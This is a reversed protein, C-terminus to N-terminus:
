PVDANPPNDWDKSYVPKIRDTLLGAGQYGLGAYGQSPSDEMEYVPLPKRDERVQMLIMRFSSIAMFVVLLIRAKHSWTEEGSSIVIASLILIGNVGNAVWDLVKLRKPWVSDETWRVPLRDPHFWRRWSRCSMYLGVFVVPMCFILFFSRKDSPIHKLWAIWVLLLPILLGVAIGALHRKLRVPPAVAPESIQASNLAEANM